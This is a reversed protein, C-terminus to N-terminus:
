SARGGADAQLRAALRVAHINIAVAGLLLALMGACLAWAAGMLGRWPILWWCCAATILLVSAYLPAQARFQRAATMSCVLFRALYGFGAAIMLWVFVDAHAAYDPRYVAALFPRGAVLAALVGFGGLASALKALKWLLSKFAAIDGVYYRALRPSASNALAAIVMNGAVMLYAMAAFYGLAAEGIEREILYRPVNVNLSDLLGVVGLPLSLWALRSITRLSARGADRSAAAAGLFRRANPSDYLLLVATWAALLGAVALLLSHTFYMAAAMAALAAPGRMMMSAAILDLREHKQLLGYVVDSFSEVAKAVGIFLIVAAAALQYGGLTAVAAIVVLAAVSSLLRLARYHRFDYQHRADTAQVARLQMNTFMIVPGCIALALAFRGVVEPSGLKALAILMGWQSAGYVGSGVLTWVFNRRLSLPRPPAAAAEVAPLVGTAQRLSGDTTM